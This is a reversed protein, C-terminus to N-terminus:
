IKNFYNKYDERTDIDPNQRPPKLTKISTEHTKLLYRAGYDDSLNSLEKLYSADFLAPVAYPRNQYSSAIIQEQNPEFVSIMEHLYESTIFPQDALTVLINRQEKMLLYNAACAISSGLGARWNKNELITINYDKIKNKINSFNAGLVVIVEGPNIVSATEIVHELLTKNERWNLLQKPIGMRSSAGAALIVM